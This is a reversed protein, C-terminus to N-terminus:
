RANRANDIATEYEDFAKVKREADFDVFATLKNQYDPTYM